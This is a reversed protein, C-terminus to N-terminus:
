NIGLVRESTAEETRSGNQKQELEFLKVSTEELKQRLLIMKRHINLNNDYESIGREALMLAIGTRLAESFTIHNAKCLKYFEMSVIVSTQIGGGSRFMQSDMKIQEEM